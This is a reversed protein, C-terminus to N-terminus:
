CWNAVVIWVLVLHVGAVYLPASINKLRTAANDDPKASSHSLVIALAVFALGVILYHYAAAELKTMLVMALAGAVAALTLGLGLIRRSAVVGQGVQGREPAGFHRSIGVLFATAYSLALFLPYFPFMGWLPIGHLTGVYFGILPLILAHSGAYLVPKKSLWNGVFFERFMAMSFVLVLLYSILVASGLFANLWFELAIATVTAVRLEGLTVLGRPVPREPHYLADSSADKFEDMLRLHFFVLAVTFFGAVAGGNLSISKGTLSAAVCFASAFFVAAAAGDPFLPFRESAYTALRRALGPISRTAIEV